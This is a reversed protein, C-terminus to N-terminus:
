GPAGLLEQAVARQSAADSGWALLVPAVQGPESVALDRSAIDDPGFVVVAGAGTHSKLVECGAAVLDPHLGSRGKYGRVLCFAALVLTRGEAAALAAQVVAQRRQHDDGAATEFVRVAGCRERAAVLLELGAAGGERDDDDLILLVPDEIRGPAPGQWTLAASAMQFAQDGHRELTAVDLWPPLDDSLGDCAADLRACSEEIRRAVASEAAAAELLAAVLAAPDPPHLLVDAGARLARLAVATADGDGADLAGRMDLADTLVLGSFGMQERLLSTVVAPELSAPGAAGLAPVAVHATMIAAVGADGAAVFPVLDSAEFAARPRDDLPLELHSDAATAGHGPFHKGCALVGAGQVGQIFAAGLRAVQEPDTGLSRTAIIPNRPGAGPEVAVDLVPALVLDIGLAQAEVATVRGAERALDLSGAAGLARASPLSTAGSVQQGAGCELDSSLIPRPRGAACAAARVAQAALRLSAVDGGFVVFGGVGLDRVLSVAEDVAAGRGAPDRLDLRAFVLRAANSLVGVM